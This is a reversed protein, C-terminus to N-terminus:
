SASSRHATPRGVLDLLLDLGLALPEARGDGRQAGLRALDAALKWEDREARGARAEHEARRRLANKPAVRRLLLLTRAKGEEVAVSRLTEDGSRRRAPSHSSRAFFVPLSNRFSSQM